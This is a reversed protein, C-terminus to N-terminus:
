SGILLAGDVRSNAVKLLLAFGCHEDQGRTRALAEDDGLQSTYSLAAHQDQRVDLFEDLLIVAFVLTVSELGPDVRSSQVSLILAGFNDEPANLRDRSGTVIEKLREREEDDVFAM